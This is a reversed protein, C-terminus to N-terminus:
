NDTSILIFPRTVGMALFESAQLARLVKEEPLMFDQESLIHLAGLAFDAGCGIADFGNLHEGVHFDPDVRFLRNKYGVLFLGGQEDGDTYKQLYGGDKFCKRIENIFDTCMYEYIDINQVLYPKFSFRLLQIMRFSSSCGFIFDGNKFVKPDKRVFINIDSCSASDGGIIVNNNIKDVVGVICTM